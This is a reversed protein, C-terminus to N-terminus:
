RGEAIVSGRLRLAWTLNDRLLHISEGGLLPVDHGKAAITFPANAEAWSATTNLTEMFMKHLVIAVHTMAAVPEQALTSVRFAAMRVEIAFERRHEIMTRRLFSREPINGTGFEQVAANAAVTLGNEYTEQGTSGQYGFTISIAAFEALAWKLRPLDNKIVIINAAM